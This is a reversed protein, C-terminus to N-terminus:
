LGICTFPEKWIWIESFLPNLLGNEIVALKNSYKKFYKKCKCNTNVNQKYCNRDSSVNRIDAM